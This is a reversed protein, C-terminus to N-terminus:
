YNWIRVPPNPFGKKFCLIKSRPINLIIGWFNATKPSFGRRTMIVEKILKKDYTKFLWKIAKEDGYELLREIIYIASKQIDLKNFDIDWFYGKLVKPAKEMIEIQVIIAHSM